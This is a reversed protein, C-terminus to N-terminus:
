CCNPALRRTRAEAPELRLRSGLVKANRLCSFTTLRLEGLVKRSGGAVALQSVKIESSIIVM